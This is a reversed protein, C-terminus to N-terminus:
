ELRYTVSVQASVTQKGPQINTQVEAGKVMGSASSDEMSYVMRPYYSFDSSTTSIVDGVEANLGEAISQARVRADVAALKLAESKYEKQLDNSLEFNIYSLLAGNNVGADVVQGIKDSQDISFKVTIMHSAKFGLSERKESNWNYEEYVNFNQTVIEEEKFGLGKLNNVVNGVIVANADKAEVATDGRTEVNFNVTVLDPMVEIESFGTSSLTQPPAMRDLVSFTMLAIVIVGLVILGTIKVSNDVQKMM